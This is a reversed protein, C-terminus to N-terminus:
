RPFAFAQHGLSVPAADGYATEAIGTARNLDVHTIRLKGIYNGAGDSLTLIMGVKLGDTQGADVEALMVGNSPQVNVINATIKRTIPVGDVAGTSVTDLRGYRTEYMAITEVAKNGADSLRQIEEQLSRVASEAVELNRNQERVRQELEANSREAALATDRLNGAERVLGEILTQGSDLRSDISSIKANIAATTARAATLDGQLQANEAEKESLRRQLNAMDSQFSNITNELQQTQSAASAVARNMATESAARMQDANQFRAKYTSENKAYVVVLPVLMVALLAVLVIFVKTLVHV